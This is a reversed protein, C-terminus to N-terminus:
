RITRTDGSCTTRSVSSGNEAALPTFLGRVSSFITSHSTSFFTSEMARCPLDPGGRGGKSVPTAKDSARSVAKERGGERGGERSCAVQVVGLVAVLEAGDHLKEAHTERQVLEGGDPLHLDVLVWHLHLVHVADQCGCRGPESGLVQVMEECEYLLHARVASVRTHNNINVM